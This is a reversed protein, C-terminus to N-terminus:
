KTTDYEKVPIEKLIQILNYVEEQCEEMDKVIDSIRYPAGNEGHGTEDVWMSAEEDPDFDDYYDILRDVLDSIDDDVSVHVTCHFDQGISSYISFDFFVDDDQFSMDVGWDTNELKNEIDNLIDDWKDEILM